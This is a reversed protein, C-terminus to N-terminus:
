CEKVAGEVGGDKRERRVGEKTGSRTTTGKGWWSQSAQAALLVVVARVILKAVNFPVHAGEAGVLAGRARALRVGGEQVLPAPRAVELAVPGVQLHQAGQVERARALRAGLVPM